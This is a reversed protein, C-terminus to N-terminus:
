PRHSGHQHRPISTTRSLCRDQADACQGIQGKAKEVNEAGQHRQNKSGHSELDRFQSLSIRVIVIVHDFSCAALLSRVTPRLVSKIYVTRTKGTARLLIAMGREVQRSLRTTRTVTKAKTASDTACFGATSVRRSYTREDDGVLLPPLTILSAM